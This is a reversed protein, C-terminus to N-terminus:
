SPPVQYHTTTLRATNYMSPVCAGESSSADRSLSQKSASTSTSAAWDASGMTGPLGPLSATCCPAIHQHISSTTNTQISLSSSHEQVGLSNSSSMLHFVDIRKNMLVHRRLAHPTPRGEPSAARRCQPSWPGAAPATSRPAAGPHLRPAGSGAWAELAAAATRWAHAGPCCCHGDGAAAEPSAARPFRPWPHRRHTSHQNPTNLSALPTTVVSAPAYARHVAAHSCGM